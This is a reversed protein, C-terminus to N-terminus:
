YSDYFFIDIDADEIDYEEIEEILNTLLWIVHATNPLQTTWDWISGNNFSNGHNRDDENLFKKMTERVDLLDSIFMRIEGGKGVYSKAFPLDLLAKRINYCKRWYALDTTGDSNKDANADYTNFFNRVFEQGAHTMGKIVIGNDLGM